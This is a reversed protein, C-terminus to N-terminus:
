KSRKKPKLHSLEEPKKNKWCIDYFECQRGFAHCAGTNRFNVGSDIAEIINEYDDIEKELMEDTYDTFLLQPESHFTTILKESCEDCKRKTAAYEKDCPECVKTKSMRKSLVLYCAEADINYKNKMAFVYTRLQDSTEIDHETYKISSTKADVVAPRDRDKFKIVYDIYGVLKDGHENDLEIKFQCAPKGEVTIVEEIDPYINKAFSQLMYQGKLRLSWWYVRNM